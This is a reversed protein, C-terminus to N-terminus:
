LVACLLLYVSSLCKLLQMAPRGVRGYFEMSLLTFSGGAVKGGGDYKRSKAVDRTSAAAGAMHAAWQLFSNAAPHVVSVDTVVLGEDPLVVMVIIIIIVVAKFSCL